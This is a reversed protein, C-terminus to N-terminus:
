RAEPPAGAVRIMALIGARVPAPLSPWAAMIAALDPDDTPPTTPPTRLAPDGPLAGCEAGGSEPVGPKETIDQPHEIGAPAVEREGSAPSTKWM